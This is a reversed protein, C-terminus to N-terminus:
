NRLGINIANHSEYVSSRSYAEPIFRRSFNKTASSKVIQRLGLLMICMYDKGYALTEATKQPSDDKSLFLTILQDDFLSFLLAAVIIIITCAILRFRVTYKQGEHDGKGYFQAGFIGPGSVAGFVTVNFVFIFQNIISVGSMQETGIQGVMINDVMSVFNTVLMQLIMPVVMVLVSKYFTKDGIFKQRFGQKM